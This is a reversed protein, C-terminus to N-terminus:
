NDNEYNNGDNIHNDTDKEEYPKIDSNHEASVDVKPPEAHKEEEVVPNRNMEGSKNEENDSDSNSKKDEKTSVRGLEQDNNSDDNRHGLNRLTVNNHAPNNKHGPPYPNIGNLYWTLKGYFTRHPQNQDPLEERPIM